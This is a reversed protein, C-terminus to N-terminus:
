WLYTRDKLIPADEDPLGWKRRWRRRLELLADRDLKVSYGGESIDASAILYLILDALALDFDRGAVFELTPDLGAQGLGLLYTNEDFPYNAGIAAKAAELNTM